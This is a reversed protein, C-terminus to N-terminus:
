GYKQLGQSYQQRYAKIREGTFFGFPWDKILYLNLAPYLLLLLLFFM